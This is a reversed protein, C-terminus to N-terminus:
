TYNEVYKGHQPKECKEWVIGKWMKEM